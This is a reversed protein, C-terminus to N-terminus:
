RSRDLGLDSLAAAAALRGSIAVMPVGPGPHISGGALYLGPIRSRAGPRSFSARWGHASQGYLAGGTGPFRREFDAPTTVLRREPGTEVDLGCERLLGFVAQEMPEITASDFQARDGTAPANAIMFLRERDGPGSDAAPGQDQACVYVAPATPLRAQKFIEIFERPYDAPFFVNHHDLDFGSTRALLSWTVASLSRQGVKIKPVANAAAPGLAGAGIGAVDTNAVVVDAPLRCDETLMVGSVRGRSLEIDNAVCEARVSGGLDEVLSRLAEALRQMGGEVRWVGCQEVHAVLNLTAPAQLPSSGCYTAYRGFLARLRPDQFQRGLRSWMSQFPRIRWLDILGRWGSAAVLSMPSPRQSRMFSQYLTRYIQRAQQCFALYRQAEAGGAFESIAEASRNRDAFLDLRSGDAWAHRALLEAPRLGIREGLEIGADTFLEEFIWPMTLVTPGSDIRQGEVQLERMKGGPQSAGEVVTVPLGRRALDVAAALGGIGAGIVVARPATM